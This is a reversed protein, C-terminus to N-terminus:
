SYELWLYQWKTAFYYHNIIKGICRIQAGSSCTGGNEHTCEDISTETGTCQVNTMEAANSGSPLTGIDSFQLICIM